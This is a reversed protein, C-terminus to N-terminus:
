ASQYAACSYIKRRRKKWNYWIKNSPISLSVDQVAKVVLGDKGHYTKQLNKLKIEM